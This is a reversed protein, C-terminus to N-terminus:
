LRSQLISVFFSIVESCIELRKVSTISGIVSELVFFVVDVFAERLEPMEKIEVDHTSNNWDELQLYKLSPTDIM